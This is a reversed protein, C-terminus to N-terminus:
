PWKTALVEQPSSPVVGFRMIKSHISPLLSEDESGLEEHLKEGPQLGIYDIPVDKGSMQIIRRAIESIRVPEGMDLVMVDGTEGRAGAELVLHCAEEVSMFYRTAAPDTLTVPEGLEIQEALVPVVSGRSGFVNGFRVSVFARGTKNGFWATLQEGLKKSKGLISTPNAAKDTSINVLASVNSRASEELVNVTGEVNTKWAEAPFKELVNLHKLAAAHFVIEPRWAEFLERVTARDRIDALFPECRVNRAVYGVGRAAALLATEDRDLLILTEPAFLGIQKCLESGISGGAGTVLVRKGSIFNWVADSEFSTSARGLLDGITVGRLDTFGTRGGLYEQLTPLVIVDLKLPFAADYINRLLQPSASPIAVILVDFGFADRLEPLSEFTGGVRLGRIQRDSMEPSDDIVVVPVYPASPEDLLESILRTGAYGAGYIAASPRGDAQAKKQPRRLKPTARFSAALLFAIPSAILVLSRPMGWQSGVVFFVVGSLSTVILTSWTLAKIQEFSGPVYRNGYLRMLRGIFIAVVGVVGGLIASNALLTSSVSFELRLFVASITAVVWGLLDALWSISRGSVRRPPSMGLRM